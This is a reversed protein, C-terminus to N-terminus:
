APLLECKNAESMASSRWGDILKLAQAETMVKADARLRSGFLPYWYGKPSKQAGTVYTTGGRVVKAIVVKRAAM